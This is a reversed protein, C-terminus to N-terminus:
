TSHATTLTQASPAAPALVFPPHSSTATVRWVDRSHAFSGSRDRIVATCPSLHPSWIVLRYSLSADTEVRRTEDVGHWHSIFLKHTISLRCSLGWVCQSMSACPRQGVAHESQSIMPLHWSHPKFTSVRCLSSTLSPSSFASVFYLPSISFIHEESM